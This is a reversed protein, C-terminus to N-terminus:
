SAFRLAVINIDHEGMRIRPLCLSQTFAEDPPEVLLTRVCFEPSRVLLRLVIEPMTVCTMRLNAIGYQYMANSSVVGM